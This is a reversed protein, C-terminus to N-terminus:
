DGARRLDNPCGRVWAPWDGLADLIGCRAVDSKLVQPRPHRAADPVSSTNDRIRYTAMESLLDWDDDLQWALDAAWSVSVEERPTMAALHVRSTPVSERWRDMRARGIRYATETFASLTLGLRQPAPERYFRRATLHTARLKNVDDVPWM